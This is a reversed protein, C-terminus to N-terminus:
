AQSVKAKSKLSIKSASSSTEKKKSYPEINIKGNKYFEEQQKTNKRGTSRSSSKM